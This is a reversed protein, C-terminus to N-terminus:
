TGKLRRILGNYEEIAAPSIVRFGHITDLLSKATAIGRDIRAQQKPDFAYIGPIIVKGQHVAYTDMATTILRLLEHETM